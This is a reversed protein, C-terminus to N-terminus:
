KSRWEIDDVDGRLSKKAQGRKEEGTSIEDSTRKELKEGIEKELQKILELDNAM